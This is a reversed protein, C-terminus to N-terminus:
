FTKRIEVGYERPPGYYYLDASISLADDRYLADTLNKGYLTVTIDPRPQWRVQANLLTVTGQTAAARELPNATSILSRPGQSDVEVRPTLTGLGGLEFRNELGVSIKWPPIFAFPENSRDIPQGAANLDMYEDYHADTWSGNVDLRLSNTLLAVVEGEFGDITARAANEVTAVPAGAANVGTVALQINDYNTYYFALSATMRHSFASGKVGVEYSYITEPLFSTLNGSVVDGNGNFGGSKYGESFTFYTMAQDIPTNALWDRPAHFQLSAMPSVNSFNRTQDINATYTITQGNLIFPVPVTIANSEVFAKQEFLGKQEFTYRIGATLSWMDNFAYTAQGYEAVSYNHIKELQYINSPTAVFPDLFPFVDTYIFSNNPTKENSYYLGIVFNLKDNLAKGSLQAEASYTRVATWGIDKSDILTLATGDFDINRLEGEYIYGGIAKFALDDFVSVKGFDYGITAGVSGVDGYATSALDSQFHRPGNASSNLCAQEYTVGFFAQLVPDIASPPAGPIPQCSFADGRARNQSYFGNVDITLASSPTFRFAGSVGWVDTNDYRQHTTDDVSYGDSQETYAAVRFALIGPKIPINISGKFKYDNYNGYGAMISGGFSDDPKVSTVNIAGGITNRGFLTGQPGRLVEIQQIDINQLLAGGSRGYYLGDVYIGVGPDQFNGPNGNGVGRIFIRAQEPDGATQEFVLSPTSQQINGINNVSRRQLDAADFATVAVPTQLLSESRRRATVVVETISTADNSAVPGPPAAQALATPAGILIPAASVSAALVFRALNRQM